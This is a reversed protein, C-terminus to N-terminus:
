AAVQGACIARARTLREFAQRQRATAREVEAPDAAAVKAGAYLSGGSWAAQVDYVAADLARRAKRLEAVSAPNACADTAMAPAGAIAIVAIAAAGLLAALVIAKQVM